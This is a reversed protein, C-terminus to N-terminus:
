ITVNGSVKNHFDLYVLQPGQEPLDFHSDTYLAIFVKNPQPQPVDLHVCYLGHFNEYIWIVTWLNFLHVTRM